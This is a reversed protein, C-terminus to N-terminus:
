KSKRNRRCRHRELFKDMEDLNDLKNGHLKKYYEKYDNKNELTIETINKYNSRRM